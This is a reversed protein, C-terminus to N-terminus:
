ELALFFIIQRHDPEYRVTCKYTRYKNHNVTSARTGTSALPKYYFYFLNRQILFLQCNQVPFPTLHHFLYLFLIQLKSTFIVFEDFLRLLLVNSSHWETQCFHHNIKQCRLYAIFIKTKLSNRHKERTNNQTRM